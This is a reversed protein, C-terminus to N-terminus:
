KSENKPTKIEEKAMGKMGPTNSTGEKQDDIHSKKDDRLDKQLSSIKDSYRAHLDTDFANQCAELALEKLIAKKDNDKEDLMKFEYVKALYIYIQPDSYLETSRKLDKIAIDMLGPDIDSESLEALKIDIKEAVLRSVIADSISARKIYKTSPDVDGLKCQKLGWNYVSNMIGNDIEDYKITCRDNLNASKIAISDIVINKLKISSLTLEPIKVNSLLAAGLLYENDITRRLEIKDNGKAPFIFADKLLFPYSLEITSDIKLNSIKSTNSMFSESLKLIKYKKFELWGKCGFFLAKFMRFKEADNKMRKIIYCAEDLLLSAEDLSVDRDIYSSALSLRAMAAISILSLNFDLGTGISSDTINKDLKKILYKFESRAENYRKSELYADALENTILLDEDMDLGNARAMSQATKLFPIIKERDNRLFSAYGRWFLIRIKYIDSKSLDFAQSLYNDAQEFMRARARDSKSQLADKIYTVGINYRIKSDDPDLQLAREFENRALTYNSERGLYYDALNKRHIASLPYCRTLKEIQAKKLDQHMSLNWEDILREKLIEYENPLKDRSKVLVNEMITKFIEKVRDASFNDCINNKYCFHCISGFTYLIYAYKLEESVMLKNNKKNFKDYIEKLNRIHPLLKNKIDDKSSTGLIEQIEMFTEHAEKWTSIDDRKTIEIPDKLIKDLM